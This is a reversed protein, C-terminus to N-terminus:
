ANLFGAYFDRLEDGGNKKWTAIAADLDSMSKRGRLIDKSLDDFPKGLSGFKSPEQIQLGYFLPDVVYPAQRIEWDTKAKVYGPYQVENNVVPSNALFAYTSIIEDKGKATAQPANQADRTYHIGEVGNVILMNEETGFPAAAFNALALMEEVKSADDTKKIFSFIAAPSGRFLTPKGGDPAFFDMPQMQYKPNSPLNMGLAGKWGGVGGATMLVAGSDFRQGSKQINGAVADPHVAGSAFLKAGWELAARYEDTEYRSQLKGDVLKWNDVGHMLQAGTWVEESGWRNKAPDTIEKALAIYEDASKPQELGMEDFLDKRYFFANGVQENPFPLGYLGGEFCSYKWAATPINALNPYKKIKDGALYESLDTFLGKVAQGFRPPINWGPIVVWDPVDKPSALVTQIKDAYTNGDSVQFNLKAGLRENVAQYYSNDAPPIAGWAPTMVTYSGGKGPVGQVSKVFSSPISTFGPATGNVSPIDPKVIDLPIYSPVLKSTADSLGASSTPQAAGGGSSCSTLAPLAAFAVAGGMLGLFSRRGVGARGLEKLSPGREPSANNGLM